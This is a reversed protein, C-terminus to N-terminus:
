TARTCGSKSLTLKICIIFDIISSDFDVIILTHIIYLRNLSYFEWSRERQLYGGVWDMREELFPNCM